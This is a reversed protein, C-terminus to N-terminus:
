HFNCVTAFPASREDSMRGLICSFSLGSRRGKADNPLGVRLEEPTEKRRRVSYMEESLAREVKLDVVDFSRMWCAVRLALVLLWSSGTMMRLSSMEPKSVELGDSPLGQFSGVCGM